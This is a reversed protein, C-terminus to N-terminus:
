FPRNRPFPVQQITFVSQPPNVGGFLKSLYTYIVYIEGKSTTATTPFVAGTVFTDALTGTKWKYDTRFSMVQASAQGSANNVVVLQKGDKSLLLGDPNQLPTDLQVLQYAEPDRVPIRVIQNDRSFGVLLYGSPHYVIGNFGFEGPATAFAPEEFFVTVNGNRDVKYIIPSFSDTVYANGQPDLAIDNVFHMAGPRLAGVDVYHIVSGTQLDYIGLAALKGITAPTSKVSAGPDAVTVLVRRRPADVKIGTTSVLREDTIFPSYVGALSVQGVTGFRLSSVLFRQYRDDYAVGEPYLATQTFNITAQLEKHGKAEQVQQASLQELEQEAPDKTCSFLMLSALLMFGYPLQPLAWHTTSLPKDM